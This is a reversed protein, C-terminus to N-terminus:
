KKLNDLLKDAEEKSVYEHLLMYKVYYKGAKRAMNKASQKDDMVMYRKAIEKCRMYAQLLHKSECWLEPKNKVAILESIESRDVSFDYFDELRSEDPNGQLLTAVYGGFSHDEMSGLHTALQFTEYVFDIDASVLKSKDEEKKNFM